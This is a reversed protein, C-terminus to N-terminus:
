EPVKGFDKWQSGWGGSSKFGPTHWPDEGISPEEGGWTAQRLPNSPFSTNTPRRPSGRDPTMQGETANNQGETPASRPDDPSGAITSFGLAYTDAYKRMGAANSSKTKVIWGADRLERLYRKVTAPSFGLDNSLRQYGPHAGFGKADTYNFIQVGILKAKDPLPSVMLAKLWSFKRNVTM